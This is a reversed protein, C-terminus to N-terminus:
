GVAVRVAGGRMGITKGVLVCGTFGEDATVLTICWWAAAYM